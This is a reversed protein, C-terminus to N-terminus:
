PGDAMEEAAPAAAPVRGQALRAASSLVFLPEGECRVRGWACSAVRFGWSPVADRWVVVWCLPLLPTRGASVSRLAARTSPSAWRRWGASVAGSGRSLSLRSARGRWCPLRRSLLGRGGGHPPAASRWKRHRPTLRPSKTPAETATLADRFCILLSSNLPFDSLQTRSQRIERRTTLRQLTPHRRNAWVSAERSSQLLEGYVQPLHTVTATPLAETTKRDTIVCTFWAACTYRCM